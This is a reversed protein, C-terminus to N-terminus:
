RVPTAELLLYNVFLVDLFPNNGQIIGIDLDNGYDFIRYRKKIDLGRLEVRGKWREPPFDFEKQKGPITDFEVGFRYWRRSELQTWPHTYFAYYFIDDKKIAHAEPYDFGIDYLNM